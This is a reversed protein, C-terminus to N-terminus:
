LGTAQTSPCCWIYVYVRTQGVESQGGEPELTNPINRWARSRSATYAQKVKEWQNTYALLAALGMM